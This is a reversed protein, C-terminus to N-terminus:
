AVTTNAGAEFLRELYTRNKAANETPDLPTTDQEIVVWGDYGAGQLTRVVEPVRAVGEGLPAFIYGELAQRFSWGEHRARALVGGDVDKLHVYAVRHADRALARLDDGGGYALHGCDFCWGVLGPDTEDLLRATEAETEVCTGVHDHFVM